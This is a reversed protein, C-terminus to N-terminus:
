PNPHNVKNKRSKELERHKKEIERTEKLHEQIDEDFNKEGFYTPKLGIFIIVTDLAPHNKHSEMFHLNGVDIDREKFQEALADAAKASRSIENVSPQTSSIQIGSPLGANYEKRDTSVIKWDAMELAVIISSAFRSTEPDILSTISAKMGAFEKLANAFKVIEFNRPTFEAEMELLNRQADAAITQLKAVEGELTINLQDLEKINKNAKATETTLLAIQKEAEAKVHAIHEESDTKVKILELKQERDKLQMLEDKAKDLQIAKKHAIYSAIFYLAAVIATVAVLYIVIKNWTTLSVSMDNVKSTKDKENVWGM